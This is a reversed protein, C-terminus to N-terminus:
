KFWNRQIKKLFVLLLLLSTVGMTVQLTSNRLPLSGLQSVAHILYILSMQVNGPRITQTWCGQIEVEREM